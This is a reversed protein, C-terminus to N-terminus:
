LSGLVLAYICLFLHHDHTCMKTDKHYKIILNQKNHIFGHLHSCLIIHKHFSGTSTLFMKFPRPTPVCACAHVCACQCVCVCLVFMCECVCVYLCAHVSVEWVFSSQCTGSSGLSLMCVHSIIVVRAYVCSKDLMCVLYKM